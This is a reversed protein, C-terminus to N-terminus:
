WSARLGYWALGLWEHLALASQQLARASPLHDPPPPLPHRRLVTPAPTVTFGAHEFALVARPMHFAHTVLLVHDIGRPALLARSRQANEWTTGSQDEIWPEATHFEDRLCAALLDALPPADAELVGGSVLVPLDLHSALWAGYRARELSLAGPASGAPYEPAFPELSAGLVVIAQPGPPRAGPALPAHWQLSLLLLSAVLPTALLAETALGAILLARGLRRRRRLLLAGAAALLLPGLPPLILSAVFRM